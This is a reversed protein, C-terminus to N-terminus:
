WRESDCELVLSAARPGSVAQRHRPRQRCQCVLPPRVAAGFRATFRELSVWSGDDVRSLV